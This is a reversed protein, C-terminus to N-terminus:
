RQRAVASARANATKPLGQAWDRGEWTWALEAPPIKDGEECVSLRDWNFGQVFLQWQGDDGRRFQMDLIPMTCGGARLSAMAWDGDVDVGVVRASLLPQWRRAVEASPVGRLEYSAACRDLASGSSEGRAPTGSGTLRCLERADRGAIAQVYARYTDVVRQRDSNALAVGFLALAVVLNLGTSRM